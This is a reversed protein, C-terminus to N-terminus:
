RTENTLVSRSKGCIRTVATEVDDPTLRSGSKAARIKALDIADALTSLNGSLRLREIIREALAESIKREWKTRHEIFLIVDGADDDEDECPSQAVTGDAYADFVPTMCRRIFQRAEILNASTAGIVRAYETRLAVYVARATSANVIDKIIRMLMVGGQHAEDFILTPRSTLTSVISALTPDAGRNPDDCGLARAIGHLIAGKNERWTIPVTILIREWDGKEEPRLAGVCARTKGVGISALVCFIRRDNDQSELKEIGRQFDRYFPLDAYTDGKNSGGRLVELLARLLPLRKPSIEEFQGGIMRRRWLDPTSIYRSYKRCFAQDSQGDQYSAIQAILERAEKTQEQNLM